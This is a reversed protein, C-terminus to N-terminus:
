GELVAKAAILREPAIDLAVACATLDPQYAELFGLIAAQTQAQGVQARLVDPTLGTLSLLREARIEDKLIWALADLAVRAAGASDLGSNKANTDLM